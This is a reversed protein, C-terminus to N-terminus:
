KSELREVLGYMDTFYTCCNKCFFYEISQSSKFPAYKLSYKLVQTFRRTFLCYTLKRFSFM